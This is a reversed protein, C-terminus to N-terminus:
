RFSTRIWLPIPRHCEFPETRDFAGGRVISEEVGWVHVRGRRIELSIEAPYVSFTMLCDHSADFLFVGCIPECISHDVGEPLRHRECRARCSGVFWEINGCRLPRNETPMAAGVGLRRWACRLRTTVPVDVLTDRAESHGAPGADVIRHQTLSDVDAADVGFPNLMWDNPQPQREPVDHGLVLPSQSQCHAASMLAAISTMRLLRL